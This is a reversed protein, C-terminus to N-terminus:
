LDRRGRVMGTSKRVLHQRRELGRRGATGFDDVTPRPRRLRRPAEVEVPAKVAEGNKKADEAAKESVKTESTTQGNKDAKVTGTSGDAAKNETVSSGDKKTETRSVSGDKGTTTATM